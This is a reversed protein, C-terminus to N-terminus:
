EENDLVLRSAPKVKVRLVLEGQKGTNKVATLLESLKATLEAHTRGDRFDNLFVSFAKM